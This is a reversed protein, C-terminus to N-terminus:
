AIFGNKDIAFLAIAVGTKAAAVNRENFCATCANNKSAGIAQMPKEAGKGGRVPQRVLIMNALLDIIVDGDHAQRSQEARRGFSNRWRRRKINRLCRR